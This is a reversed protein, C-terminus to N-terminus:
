LPDVLISDCRAFRRDRSVDLYFDRRIVGERLEQFLYGRTSVTKKGTVCIARLLVLELGPSVELEYFGNDNTFTRGIV